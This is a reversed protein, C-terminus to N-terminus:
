CSSQLELELITSTKISAKGFKAIIQQQQMNAYKCSHMHSYEYVRISVYKFARMNAYKCLQMSAYLQVANMTGNWYQKVKVKLEKMGLHGEAGLYVLVIRHAM